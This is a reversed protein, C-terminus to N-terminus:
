RLVPLDAGITFRLNGHAAHLAQEVQEPRPARAFIFGLYSGGEPLSALRQEPKATILVEEIGPTALAQEVGQVDHYIGAQPIPVMMVGAATRERAINSVSEGLALRILLEELSMWDHASSNAGTRAFRLARSCLGGISRAAVEMPWVASEHLRFEAHIPGHILGLSAVATRLTQAIAEQQEQTLRSPTVYITEEFFPGALPDPKDFIALLRLRGREMIAEVAVEVGPVYSEAQIFESTNERLVRIEPTRLMAAIRAFAAETEEPTDARIVGRSGSLALPKLVCPLGVTREIRQAAAAPPTALPLRVFGPVNLGAGALLTRAAYKDRCIDAAAPPHGPLELAACVRAATPTPRDGLSVVADFRRGKRSETLVRTASEAPNEFQLPIANDGWPDELQHCRDTGFVINLGLQEAAEVFARTQYGLKSALILLSKQM